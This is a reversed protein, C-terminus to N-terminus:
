LFRNLVQAVAKGLDELAFQVNLHRALLQLGGHEVRDLCEHQKVSVIDAVEVLLRYDQGCCVRLM